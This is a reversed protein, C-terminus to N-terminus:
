KSAWTETVWTRHGHKRGHNAAGAKANSALSEWWCDHCGAEIMSLFFFRGM